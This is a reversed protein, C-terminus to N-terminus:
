VTNPSLAGCRYVNGERFGSYIKMFQRMAFRVVSHNADPPLLKGATNLFCADKEVVRLVETSDEESLFSLMNVLVQVARDMPIWFHYSDRGNTSDAVCVHAPIKIDWNSVEPLTSIGEPESTDVTLGAKSASM